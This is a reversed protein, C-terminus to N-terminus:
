RRRILRRLAGFRPQPLRLDRAGTFYEDDGPSSPSALSADGNNPLRDVGQQVHKAAAPDHSFKALM